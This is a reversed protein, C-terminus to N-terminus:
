LLENVLTEVSAASRCHIVKDRYPALYHVTAARNIVPRGDRTKPTASTYYERSSRLVGVLQGLNRAYDNFRTFKRRGPQRKVEDLGGQAFRGLIRWAAVHWPVYDLWIIVDAARLLEDTWELFIGETVWTPQSAICQVDAQQAARSREM